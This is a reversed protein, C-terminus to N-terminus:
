GTFALLKWLETFQQRLADTTLTPTVREVGQSELDTVLQWGDPASHSLGVVQATSAPMTQLNIVFVYRLSEEPEVPMAQELEEFTLLSPTAFPWLKAFREVDVSTRLGSVLVRFQDASPAGPNTTLWRTLADMMRDPQHLMAHVQADLYDIRPKTEKQYEVARALTVWELCLPLDPSPAGYRAITASPLIHIAPSDLLKFYLSRSKQRRGPVCDILYGWEAQEVLREAMTTRASPAMPWADLAQELLPVATRPDPDMMAQTWYRIGIAWEAADEDLKKQHAEYKKDFREDVQRHIQVLALVSIIVVVVGLIAAAAGILAGIVAISHM